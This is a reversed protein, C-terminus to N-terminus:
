AICLDLDKLKTMTRIWNNKSDLDKFEPDCDTREGEADFCIWRIHRGGSHTFKHYVYRVFFGELESNKYLEASYCREATTDMDIRVEEVIKQNVVKTIFEM